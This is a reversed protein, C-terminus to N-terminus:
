EKGFKQRTLVPFEKYPFYSKKSETITKIIQHREPFKSNEFSKQPLNMTSLTGLKLTKRGTELVYLLCIFIM